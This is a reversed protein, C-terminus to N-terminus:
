LIAEIELRVGFTSATGTDNRKSTDIIVVVEGIFPSTAFKFFENSTYCSSVKPKHFSSMKLWQDNNM